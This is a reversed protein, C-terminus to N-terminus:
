TSRSAVSRFKRLCYRKGALWCAVALIYTAALAGNGTIQPIHPLSVVRPAVDHTQMSWFIMPLVVAVNWAVYMGVVQVHSFGCRVLWQYLHERHASYWRRGSLMRSLLTATSDVIFASCAIFGAWFASPVAVMQRFVAVAVLLGLVGSGVDGMFIRARPYNFPLFGLTAAAFLGIQQAEGIRGARACIWALVCFVFLAQTGLLGDIGDMFNHLNISWVLAIGFVLWATVIWPLAPNFAPDGLLLSLAPTGLIVAALCHALLRWGAALSRHDDIWGVLAVLTIAGLLPTSAIMGAAGSRVEVLALMSLVVAVVIAIGGGRPTPLSHSRRQGPQDILRRRHAYHISIRTGLLSVIATALTLPL